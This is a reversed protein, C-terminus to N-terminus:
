FNYWGCFQRCLSTKREGANPHPQKGRFQGISFLDFKRVRGGAGGNVRDRMLGAADTGNDRIGRYGGSAVASGARLHRRM